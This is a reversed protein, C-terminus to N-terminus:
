QYSRRPFNLAGFFSCLAISEFLSLFLFLHRLYCVRCISNLYLVSERTYKHSCVRAPNTHSYQRFQFGKWKRRSKLTEIKSLNSYYLIIKTVRLCFTCCRPCELELLGIFWLKNVRTSNTASFLIFHCLFFSANRIPALHVRLSFLPALIFVFCFFLM